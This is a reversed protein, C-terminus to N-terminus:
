IAAVHNGPATELGVPVHGQRIKNAVITPKVLAM